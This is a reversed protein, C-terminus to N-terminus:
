QSVTSIYAALNLIEEDSLGTAMPIMLASNPGITEGARYQNLRGIIYDASQGALKPFSAMGQGGPGHCNVCTQAYRAEGAKADGKASHAVNVTFAISATFAVAFLSRM